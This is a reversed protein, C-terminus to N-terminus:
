DGVGIDYEDDAPAARDLCEECFQVDPGLKYPHVDHYRGCAACVHSGLVEDAALGARLLDGRSIVGVVSDDDVVPVCGITRERLVAAADHVSAGKPITAVPYRMREEICESFDADRLDCVCVVGVLDKKDVVLLHRVKRRRALAKAEGVPTEPSVTVIPRHMVTDISNM